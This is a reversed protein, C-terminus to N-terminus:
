NELFIFEFLAQNEIVKVLVERQHGTKRFFTLWTFDKVKLLYKILASHIFICMFSNEPRELDIHNKIIITRYIHLFILSNFLTIQCFSSYVLNENFYGLSYSSNENRESVKQSLLNHLRKHKINNVESFKFVM